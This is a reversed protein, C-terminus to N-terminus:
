QPSIRNSAACRGTTPSASFSPAATPTQSPQSRNLASWEIAPDVVNTHLNVRGTSKFELVKSEGSSMLAKIATSPDAPASQMLPDDDSARNVPKGM